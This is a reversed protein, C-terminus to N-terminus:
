QGHSVDAAMVLCVTFSGPPGGGRASGGGRHRRALAARTAAAVSTTAAITVVTAVSDCIRAWAPCGAAAAGVFVDHGRNGPTCVVQPVIWTGSSRASGTAPCVATRYRNAWWRPVPRDAPVTARLSPPGPM